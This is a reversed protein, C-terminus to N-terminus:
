EGDLARITPCPYDCSDHWCWDTQGPASERTHLERVREVAELAAIIEPTHNRLESLNTM